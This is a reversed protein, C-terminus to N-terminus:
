VGLLVAPGTDSLDQLGLLGLNRHVENILFGATREVITRGGMTAPALSSQARCRRCLGISRPGLSVRMKRFGDECPGSLREEPHQLGWAKQCCPRPSM